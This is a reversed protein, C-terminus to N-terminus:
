KIKWWGSMYSSSLLLFVIFSKHIIDTDTNICTAGLPAKKPHTAGLPLLSWFLTWQLCLAAFLLSLSWPQRWGAPSSGGIVRVSPPKSPNEHQSHGGPHRGIPKGVSSVETHALPSLSFSFSLPSFSFFFLCQYIMRSMVTIMSIQKLKRLGKPKYSQIYSAWWWGIVFGM